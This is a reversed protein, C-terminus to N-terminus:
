DCVCTAGGGGFCPCVPQLHTTESSVPGKGEQVCQGCPGRPGWPVEPQWSRGRRHQSGEPSGAGETVRVGERQEGVRGLELEISVWGKKSSLAVLQRAGAALAPDWPVWERGPLHFPLVLLSGM